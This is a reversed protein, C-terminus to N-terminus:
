DSTTGAPRELGIFDQMARTFKEQKGAQVVTAAYSISITAKPWGMKAAERQADGTPDLARDQISLSVWQVGDSATAAFSWCTDEDADGCNEPQEVAVFRGLGAHGAARDAADLVTDWEARIPTVESALECCNVTTLMSEGGYGNGAQAHWSDASFWNSVPTAPILAIGTADTIAAAIHTTIHTAIPQLEVQDPYGILAEGDQGAHAPYNVWQVVVHEGAANTHTTTPAPSRGFAACGTLLTLM